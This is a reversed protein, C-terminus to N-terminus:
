FEASRYFPLFPQRLCPGPEFVARLTRKPENWYCKRLVEGAGVRRMMEIDRPHPKPRNENEIWVAEAKLLEETSIYSQDYCGHHHHWCLRFVRTPDKCPSLHLDDSHIHAFALVSRRDPIGCVICHDTAGVRRLQGRVREYIPSGDPNCFGCREDGILERLRSQDM